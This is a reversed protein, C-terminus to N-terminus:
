NKKILFNVLLEKIGKKDNYKNKYLEEYPLWKSDKVQTTKLFEYTTSKGVGPVGVFEIYKAM